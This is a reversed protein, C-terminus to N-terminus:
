GNENEDGNLMASALYNENMRGACFDWSIHLSLLVSPMDSFVRRAIRRM